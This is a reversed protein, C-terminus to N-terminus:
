VAQRHQKRESMEIILMELLIGPHASWRSENCLRSLKLIQGSLYKEDMDATQAKVAEINELSRNLINQPKDLYKVLLATRSFDIWDEIVRRVEKGANLVESLRILASATKGAFVDLSMAAIVEDGASGVASLVDNRDLTKQGSSVCTELISLADRVSGDANAAVLALADDAADIGLEGTIEKMGEAIIAAPVRKFEFSLCRSRITAPLKEPVTTALIFVTNEPPEELTKLFANAAQLTLMHAEDIIFVRKRGVSPPYVTAATIDRVNDVGNNSAADIEIVDVFIGNQIAICNECVGCPRQGDALCNVGKALLRAMTTKGTGRTGSFLYAHPVNGDAIQSKLVSVVHRQGLVKDFTQPRFRRYIAEYQAQGM